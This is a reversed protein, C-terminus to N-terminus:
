RAVQRLKRVMGRVEPNAHDDVGLLDLLAVTARGIERLSADAARRDKEAERWLRKYFRWRM